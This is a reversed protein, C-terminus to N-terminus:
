EFQCYLFRSVYQRHLFQRCQQFLPAGPHLWVVFPRHIKLSHDFSFTALSLTPALTIMALHYSANTFIPHKHNMHPVLHNAVVAQLDDRRFTQFLSSLNDLTPCPEPHSSMSLLARSLQLQRHINCSRKVCISTVHILRPICLISAVHPRKQANKSRTTLFPSPLFVSNYCRLRSPISPHIHQQRSPM